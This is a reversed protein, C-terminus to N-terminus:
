VFSQVDLRLSDGMQEFECPCGLLTSLHQLTTQHSCLVVLCDTSSLRMLHTQLGLRCRQELKDLTEGPVAGRGWHWSAVTMDLEEAHQRALEEDLSHEVPYESFADDVVLEGPLHEIRGVGGAGRARLAM